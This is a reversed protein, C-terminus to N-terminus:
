AQLNLSILPLFFFVPLYIIYTLNAPTIDFQGPTWDIEEIIPLIKTLKIEVDPLSCKPQDQM